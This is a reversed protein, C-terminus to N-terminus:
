EFIMVKLESTWVQTLIFVDFNLEATM